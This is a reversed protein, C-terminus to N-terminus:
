VVRFVGMYKRTEKNKFYDMTESSHMYMYNGAYRLTNNRDVLLHGSDIAEQFAKQADRYIPKDMEKEERKNNLKTCFYVM